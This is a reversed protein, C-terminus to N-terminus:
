SIEAFMKMYHNDNYYKEIDPPFDCPVWKGDCEGEWKFFFQDKWIKFGVEPYVCNAELAEVVVWPYSGAENLDGYNKKLFDFAIKKSTFFGVTRKNLRFADRVDERYISPHKPNDWGISTIFWFINEKRNM